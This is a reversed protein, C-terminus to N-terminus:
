TARACPKESPIYPSRKAKNRTKQQIVETSPSPIPSHVARSCSFLSLFIRINRYTFTLLSYSPESLYVYVRGRVATTRRGKSLNDQIRICRAFTYVQEEASIVRLGSQCVYVGQYVYAVQCVYVGEYVYAVQYVYVGEYVYVSRKNRTNDKCVYAVECVYVDQTRM